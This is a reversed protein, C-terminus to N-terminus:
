APPTRAAELLRILEDLDRRKMHRLQAKHVEAVPGDLRALLALGDASIRALIVRRDGADRARRVLGRRELRDLLRTIDSDRHVMREAIAGCSCGEDGAGRLIRLVNYQAFSLDAERLLAEERGVLVGATRVLNLFVEEERSGFPKRQRIERQLLTM